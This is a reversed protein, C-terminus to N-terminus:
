KSVTIVCNSLGKPKLRNKEYLQAKKKTEFHGTKVRYFMENRVTIPEIWTTVGYKRKLETRLRKAEKMKRFAGCQISFKGTAKIAVKKPAVKTTEKKKIKKRGNGKTLSKYFTLETHKNAATTQTIATASQAAGTQVSIREGLQAPSRKSSQMTEQTFVVVNQPKIQKASVPLHQAEKVGTSRGLAFGIVFVLVLVIISLIILMVIQKNDMTLNYKPKIREMDRM